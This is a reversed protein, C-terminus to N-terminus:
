ELTNLYYLLLYITPQVSVGPCIRSSRIVDYAACVLLITVGTEKSLMAAAAFGLCAALCGWEHVSAAGKRFLQERVVEQTEQLFKMRARNVLKMDSRANRERLRVHSVYFLFSLLYFLCALLDARGVIGSVAETHVPHAAFLLAALSAAPAPLLLRGVRLTLGTNLAHLLVNVLHFAAPRLGCAWHNLRFTLVCLPRYSGHSGSSNLPTGWFDNRWMDALPTSLLVDPNRLIARSCCLCM